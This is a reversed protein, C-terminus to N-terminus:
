LTIANEKEFDRINKDETFQPESVGQFVIQM